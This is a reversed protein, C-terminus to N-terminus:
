EGEVLFTVSKIKAAACVNLVDVVRSYKTNPTTAITVMTSSKAAESMEKFRMLTTTLKPMERDNPRDYEQQNLIVQGNELIQVMQEDVMTMPQNQAVTGPLNISLENEQKLNASSVMFFLILIFIVDVMPAIQFQLEEFHVEHRAM